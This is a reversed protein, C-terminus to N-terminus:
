NIDITSNTQQQLHQKGLVGKLSVVEFLANAGTIGQLSACPAGHLRKECVKQSLEHSGESAPVPHV